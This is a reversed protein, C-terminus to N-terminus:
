LESRASGTSRLPILAKAQEHFIEAMSLESRKTLSVAAIRM